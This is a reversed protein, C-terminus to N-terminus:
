HSATKLTKLSKNSNSVQSHPFTIIVESNNAFQTSSNNISLSLIVPQSLFALEEGEKSEVSISDGGPVTLNHLLFSYNASFVKWKRGEESPLSPLIVNTLNLESFHSVAAVYLTTLNYTDTLNAQYPFHKEEMGCENEM